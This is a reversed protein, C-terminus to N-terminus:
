NTNHLHGSNTLQSLYQSFEQVSFVCIEDYYYPNHKADHQKVLRRLSQRIAVSYNKQTTKKSSLDDLIREMSDVPDEDIVVIFHLRTPKNSTPCNPFIQKELTIYSEIAKLRISSILEHDENKQQKFFLDKYKTYIRELHECRDMNEKHLYECLDIETRFNEKTIKKRFGSKFEILVINKTTLMLGDASSPVTAKGFVAKCISDFNYIEVSSKVLSNGNDSKSINTIASKFQHWHECAYKELDKINM